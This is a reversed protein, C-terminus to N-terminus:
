NHIFGEFAGQTMVVTGGEDDILTAAFTGRGYGGTGEWTTVTIEMTSGNNRSDYWTGQGNQYLLVAHDTAQTYREGAKANAPLDIQLYNHGDPHDRDLSYSITYDGSNFFGVTTSYDLPTDNVMFTAHLVNVHDEDGCSTFGLLVVLSFLLCFLWETRM